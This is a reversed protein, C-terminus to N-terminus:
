FDKQTEEIFLKIIKFFIFLNNVLHDWNAKDARIRDDAMCSYLSINCADVERRLDCSAKTFLQRFNTPFLNTYTHYVVYNCLHFENNDHFSFDQTLIITFKRLKGSSINFLKTHFCKEVVYSARVDIHSKEKTILLYKM